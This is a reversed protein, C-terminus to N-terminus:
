PLLFRGGSAVVTTGTLYSADESLLFSIVQAIEEAQGLRGLPTASRLQDIYAPSLGAAMDTDIIGPAVGNIRIGYRALPECCSKTLSNLGAKAASYALLNPRVAMAAVSSVNVIRGFTRTMMSGKVAWLVNFAGTLNM